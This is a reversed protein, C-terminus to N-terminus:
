VDIARTDREAMWNSSGSSANEGIEHVLQPSPLATVPQLCHTDTAPLANRGDEFPCLSNAQLPPRELEGSPQESWTQGMCRGRRFAGCTKGFPGPNRESGRNTVPPFVRVPLHTWKDAFRGIGSSRSRIERHPIPLRTLSSTCEAM